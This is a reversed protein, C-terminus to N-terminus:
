YGMGDFRDRDSRYIFGIFPELWWETGNFFKGPGSLSYKMGVDLYVANKLHIGLGVKGTFGPAFRARSEERCYYFPCDDGFAEFQWMNADFAGTVYPLVADITPVQFRVGPSFHIRILPQLGNPSVFEPVADTDIITWHLGFAFDFVVWGIDFGGWGTLSAGPKVADRNVDLFIPVGAEAGGQFRLQVRRDQASAAPALLCLGLALAFFALRLNV